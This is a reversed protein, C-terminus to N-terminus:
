LVGTQSDAIFASLNLGEGTGSELSAIGVPKFSLIEEEEIEQKPPRPPKSEV